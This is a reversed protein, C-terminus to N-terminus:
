GSGTLELPCFYACVNRIVEEARRRRGALFWWRFDLAMEKLSSAINLGFLISLAVNIADFLSKTRPSIVKDKCFWLSLSFAAILIWTITCRALGHYLIRAVNSAKKARTKRHRSQAPLAASPIPQTSPPEEKTHQLPTILPHLSETDGDIEATSPQAEALHPSAAREHHEDEDSAGSKPYLQLSHGDVGATEATIPMM